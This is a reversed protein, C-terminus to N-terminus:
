ALSAIMWAPRNSGPTASTLLGNLKASSVLFTRSTKSAYLIGSTPHTSPYATFAVAGAPQHSALEAFLPSRQCSSRTSSRRPRRAIPRQQVNGQTQRMISTSRRSLFLSRAEELRSCCSRRIRKFPCPLRLRDSLRCRLQRRRRVFRPCGFPGNTPRPADAPPM